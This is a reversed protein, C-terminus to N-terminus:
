LKLKEVAFVFDNAESELSKDPNGRMEYVISPVGGEDMPITSYQPSSYSAPVYYVIYNLLKTINDASENAITDSSVPAFIYPDQLYGGNSSHIDIALNFHKKISHNVVFEEALLQGNMRSEEFDDSEGTVNIRYVYYSYNLENSSKQLSDYIADHANYERPHQGLVYAVKVSSNPNGYPGEFSVSGIDNKGIVTSNVNAVSSGTSNLFDNVAPINGLTDSVMPNKSIESVINDENATYDYYLIACEAIIVILIILLYILKKSPKKSKGKSNEDDKAM